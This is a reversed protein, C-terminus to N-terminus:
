LAMLGHQLLQKIIKNFSLLFSFMLSHSVLDIREDSAGDINGCRIVDSNRVNRVKICFTFSIRLVSSTVSYVAHLTVALECLFSFPHLKARLYWYIISVLM